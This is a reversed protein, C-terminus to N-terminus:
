IPPSTNVTCRPVYRAVARSVHPLYWSFSVSRHGQAYMGAPRGGFGFFLQGNFVINGHADFAAARCLPYAGGGTNKLVAHYWSRGNGVSCVESAGHLSYGYSTAEAVCETMMPAPAPSMRLSFQQGPGARGTKTAIAVAAVVIALTGIFALRRWVPWRGTM